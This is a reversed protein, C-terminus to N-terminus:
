ELEAYTPIRPWTDIDVAVGELRFSHRKKEQNRFAVFGLRDLLAQAKEMSDVALEIEEAGDVAEAEYCKYTLLVDNSTKRLRIFKKGEKKWNLEKDYYIVEELTYEGLDEANLERLKHTLAEKDIELFRAEIERHERPM